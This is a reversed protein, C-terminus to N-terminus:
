VITKILVDLIAKFSLINDLAPVIDFEIIIEKEEEVFLLPVTRVHEAINLSPLIGAVWYLHHPGSGPTHRLGLAWSVSPLIFTDLM